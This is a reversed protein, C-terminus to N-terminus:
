PALNDLDDQTIAGNAILLDLLQRATVGELPDVVPLTCDTDAVWAMNEWKMCESPPASDVASHGTPMTTTRIITGNSDVVNQVYGVYQGNGDVFHRPPGLQDGHAMLVSLLLIAVILSM